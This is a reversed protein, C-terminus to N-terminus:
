AAGSRQLTTGAFAPIGLTLAMREDRGRLSPLKILHAVSKEIEDCRGTTIPGQTRLSSFYPDSQVGDDECTLLPPRLERRKGHMSRMTQM